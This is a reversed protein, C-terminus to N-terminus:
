KKKFLQADSVVKEFLSSLESPLTQTQEMAFYGGPALSDYYMKIVNIREEHTFHLLVNKCVILSYESGIPNLSLLDHKRFNIRNRLSEIIRFQGPTGEPEFYKKFIERPIRSLEEAPYVGATVISGFTNNEDLDTADIKLNKFGFYGMKESFVIAITYLEPGMACGADWIRVVSRGAITPLVHNVMLEITHLDRFFFTFAM